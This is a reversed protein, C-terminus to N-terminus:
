RAFDDGAAQQEERTTARLPLVQHPGVRERRIREQVKQGHRRSDRLDLDHERARHRVM